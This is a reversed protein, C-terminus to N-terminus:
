KGLVERLEELTNNLEQDEPNEKQIKELNQQLMQFKNIMERRTNSEKNYLANLRKNSTELNKVKQIGSKKIKGIVQKVKNRVKEKTKEIEDATKKQYDNVAKEVEDFNKILKEYKESDKRIREDDKRIKLFYTLVYTVAGGAICLSTGIAINKIKSNKKAHIPLSFILFTILFFSLHKKNQM